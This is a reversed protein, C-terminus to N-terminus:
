HFVACISGHCPFGPSGPLSLIHSPCFTQHLVPLQSSLARTGICDSTSIRQHCYVAPLSCVM